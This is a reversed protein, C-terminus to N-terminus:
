RGTYANKWIYHIGAALYFLGIFYSLSVGGYSVPIEQYTNTVQITNADVTTEIHGTQYELPSLIIGLGLVIFIIGLLIGIVFDHRSLHIALLPGLALLIVIMMEPTM